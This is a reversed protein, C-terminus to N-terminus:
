RKYPSSYYYQLARPLLQKLRAIRHEDAPHTSAFEPPKKMNRSVMMMKQWFKIAERPDYGAKAMLYLGIEDAEYEFKRSYPLFVGFNAGLGYAQNIMNQYKAGVSKIAVQRALDGLEMMSIREAGHRAIAHAVEHGIVTALQADNDILKLLGTYVFIKGGPLCFANIQNSNIVHFTWQYNPQNAVKAIRMGVRRVMDNLRPDHNISAKALIEQEAKLGMQIEQAPSIIILQKRNTYPSHSCATLIFMLFTFLLTKFIM